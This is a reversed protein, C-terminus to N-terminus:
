FERIARVVSKLDARLVWITDQGALLVVQGDGTVCARSGSLPVGHGSIKVPPGFRPEPEVQGRRLWAGTNTEYLLAATDGALLLQPHSGPNPGEADVIRRPASWQLGDASTAYLIGGRFDDYVLHFRGDTAVSLHSNCTNSPRDTAERLPRLEQIEGPTAGWGIHGHWSLGYRGDRARVIQAAGLPLGGDLGRWGSQEPPGPFVPRPRAWARGDRSSALWLRYGATSFPDWALRNSFYALWITGDGDAYLAPEITPFVAGDPLAWPKEWTVLDRSASLRIQSDGGYAALWRGDPLRALSCQSPPFPTFGRLSTLDWRFPSDLNVFLAYSGGAVLDAECRFAEERGPVTYAFARRGPALRPYASGINIPQGNVLLTGGPPLAEARLSVLPTPAATARPRFLAEVTVSHVRFKGEWEAVKCHVEATGPPIKYRAQRVRRGPPADDHWGIMGLNLTGPNPEPTRTWCEFQGGYRLEFQEIDCSIDLASFEQGPPPSFAFHCRPCGKGVQPLYSTALAAPDDMRLTVTPNAPSLIALLPTHPLEEGLPWQRVLDALRAVDGPNSGQGHILANLQAKNRVEIARRLQGMAELTAVLEQQAQLTHLSASWAGPERKDPTGALLDRVQQLHTAELADLPRDLEPAHDLGRAFTAAAAPLDRVMDRQLRGIQLLLATRRRLLDDKDHKEIGRPVILRPGPRHLGGDWFPNPPTEETRAPPPALGAKLTMDLLSVATEYAAVAESWNAALQHAHGLGLADELEDRMMALREYDAAAADFRAVARQALPEFARVMAEYDARAFADRGARRLRLPEADRAGEGAAACAVAVACLWGAAGLDGLWRMPKGM